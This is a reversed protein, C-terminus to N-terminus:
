CWCWCREGRAPRQAGGGAIWVCLMDHAGYRWVIRTRRRLHDSGPLLAAAPPPTLPPTLLLLKLLLLKLLLLQLTVLLVVVLLLLLLPVKTAYDIALGSVKLDSSERIVVGSYNGVGGPFMLTTDAPAKVEFSSATITFDRKFTIEGAPLTYSKAGSAIAKNLAAQVTEGSIQPAALAGAALSLVLLTRIM